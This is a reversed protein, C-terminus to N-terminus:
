FIFICIFFCMLVLKSNNAKNVNESNSICCWEDCVDKDCQPTSFPLRKKFANSEPRTLPTEPTLDSSHTGEICQFVETEEPTLLSENM